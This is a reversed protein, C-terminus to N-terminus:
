ELKIKVLERGEPDVKVEYYKKLSDVLYDLDQKSFYVQRHSKVQDTISESAIVKSKLISNPAPQKPKPSEVILWPLKNSEFPQEENAVLDFQVKPPPVTQVRPPHYTSHTRVSGTSAAGKSSM